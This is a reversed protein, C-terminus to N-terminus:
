NTKQIRCKRLYMFVRNWNEYVEHPNSGDAVTVTVFNFHLRVNCGRHKAIEIMDEIADYIAGTIPVLVQEGDIVKEDYRLRIGDM